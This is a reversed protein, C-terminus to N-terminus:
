VNQEHATPLQEPLAGSAPAPARPEPPEYQVISRPIVRHGLFAWVFTALLGCLFLLALIDDWASAQIGHASVAKAFDKQGHLTHLDYRAANVLRAHRRSSLDHAAFGIFVAIFILNVALALARPRTFTRIRLRRRLRGRRGPERMWDVVVPRLDAGRSKRRITAGRVTGKFEPRTNAQHIVELIGGDGQDLFDFALSVGGAETTIRLECQPRSTYLLRAQLLEDGTPLTLRLPDAEVIDEGRVTDGRENWFALYTRSLRALRRGGLTLVAGTGGRRRSPDLLTDFDLAYDIHPKQRSRRALWYATPIGVVSAALGAIALSTNLDM